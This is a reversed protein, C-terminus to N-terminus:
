CIQLNMLAMALATVFYSRGFIFLYARCFQLRKRLIIELSLQHIKIKTKPIFSCNKKSIRKLVNLLFPSNFHYATFIYLTVTHPCIFNVFFVFLSSKKKRKKKSSSISLFTCYVAVYVYCIFTRLGVLYVPYFVAVVSLCVFCVKECNNHLIARCFQEAWKRRREGLQISGKHILM